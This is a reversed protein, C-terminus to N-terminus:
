WFERREEEEEDWALDAQGMMMKKLTAWPPYKLPTALIVELSNGSRKKVRHAWYETQFPMKLTSHSM